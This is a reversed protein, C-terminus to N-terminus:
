HWQQSRLRRLEDDHTLEISQVGSIKEYVAQKASIVKRMAQVTNSQQMDDARLRRIGALLKGDDFSRVGQEAAILQCAHNCYLIDFISEIKIPEAFAVTYAPTFGPSVQNIKQIYDVTQWLARDVKIKIIVPEQVLSNQIPPKKDRLSAVHAYAHADKARTCLFILGSRGPKIQGDLHIEFRNLCTTGHYLYIESADYNKEIGPEENVFSALSSPPLNDPLQSM